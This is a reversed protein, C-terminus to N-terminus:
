DGQGRLHPEADEEPAEKQAHLTLVPCAALRVVRTVVSGHFMRRLGARRPTAMVLLDPALTEVQRVITDVVHGSVIVKEIAPRGLGEILADLHKRAQRRHYAGLSLEEGDIFVLQTPAEWRSPEVVHIATVRTPDDVLDLAYRLGAESLSPSLDVAVLVREFRM